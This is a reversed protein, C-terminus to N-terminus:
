YFDERKPIQFAPNLLPLRIEFRAGKRLLSNSVQISGQHQALITKSIFLGLGTGKPKGLEPSNLQTFKDFIISQAAPAIGPGNDQVWWLATLPEQTLGIEMEGAVPDCFKLANSLLNVAVQLMQDKNGLIYVPTDPLLIKLTVQQNQFLHDMTDIAHQLLAGLDLKEQQLESTGSQLKELDLVQNILRSIRESEAVLIQLYATSKDEPLETRYDLLIKSLAKISTVPTRLEHTVTTIFDAKMRDLTKLQDNALTLQDTLAELQKNKAEVVRSYDVAEKTQELIRM